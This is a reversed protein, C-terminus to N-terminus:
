RTGRAPHNLVDDAQIAFGTQQSVAEAFPQGATANDGRDYRLMQVAQCEADDQRHRQAQRQMGRHEVVGLLQGGKRM